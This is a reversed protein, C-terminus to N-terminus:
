KEQLEKIKSGLFRLIELKRLDRIASVNTLECGVLQLTQLLHISQPPSPFSM